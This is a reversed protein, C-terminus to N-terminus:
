VHTEGEEALDHLLERIDQRSMGARLARALAAALLVRVTWVVEAGAGPRCPELKQEANRM